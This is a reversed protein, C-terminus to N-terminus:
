ILNYRGREALIVQLISSILNLVVGQVFQNYRARARTTAAWAFGSQSQMPLYPFFSFVAYLFM